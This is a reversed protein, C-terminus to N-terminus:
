RKVGRKIAQTYAEIYVSKVKSSGWRYKNMCRQSRIVNDFVQKIARAIDKADRDALVINAGDSKLKNAIGVRVSVVPIGCALAENVVNSCGEAESACVLVDLSQYYPVLATQPLVTPYSGSDMVFDFHLIGDLEVNLIATAKRILPVGKYALHKKDRKNGVWGIRYTRPHFLEMNVGNPIYVPEVNVFPRIATILQNNKCFCVKAKKTIGCMNEAHKMSRESIVEFGWPVSIKEVYDPILPIIQLGHIHIFDWKGFMNKNRERIDNFSIIDSKAEPLLARQLSEARLAIAWKNQIGIIHLIKMTVNRRVHLVKM